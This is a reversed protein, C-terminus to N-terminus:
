RPSTAGAEVRMVPLVGVGEEAMGSREYLWQLQARSNQRFGEEAAREAEFARRLGEDEALMGAATDEFVYASFHEKRQLWSDFANWAFYSDVAEPEFLAALLQLDDPTVAILYDGARAAVTRPVPTARVEYHLYHGEYPQAVTEYGDIRYAMAPFSTDAALPPLERTLYTPILEEYAAPVYYYAPAVVQAAPRAYRRFPIRVDIPRARDYRLRVAGTVASPERVAAYGRFDITDARTTDVAWRLTVSDQAAMAAANERRLRGIAERHGLWYALTTELFAQTARVRTAFPKLMHAETVFALTHLLAAYGTSYRPADLFVDIGSEQPPGDANVYPVTPYGRAAMETYLAPEMEERLYAGLVPGLKDYQTAIVTMPYAYDAGNTTHTDVFVDPRLRQLQDTLGRANRSDQKVFDRNLDLNRANGRFGYARPGDQNARTGGGRNLMGGVNYAPVIVVQAGSLDLDRLEGAALDRALLMSADVGCPEGAHIGNNVFFTPRREDTAEGDGYDSIVVLDVGIGADTEFGPELRVRRPYAKALVAYFDVAEAYTASALTDREFPTSLEYDPRTLQPQACTTTALGLLASAYAFPKAIPPISRHAYPM